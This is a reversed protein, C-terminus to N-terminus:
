PAAEQVEFEAIAAFPQGNHSNLALLRLYRASVPTVLQVTKLNEDPAFTGRNIPEGWDQGDMSTHFAYDKIWGNRNGDQRPLVNFGALQIPHDFRLVFEHPFGPQSERFVTHWFTRPDGDMAKGAEFGVEESSAQFPQVGVRSLRSGPLVLSRVQGATVSHKPSFQKSSMYRLLSHRFQRRVPDGALDNELDVSCIVLRGKGLRAEVVLGLKRATFWDDIVQVSPQLAAPFDDLIMAGARSTLYWWQWNSHFDTPFAAFLPHKPDCLIGLTHPAQQQTWATNWFISSFGLAVKGRKKDPAVREPPILLLVKGGSNLAALAAENLENAVTIGLPVATNVAPPYVWLDWDNEALTQWRLNAKNAIAPENPQSRIIQHLNIELRYKAPAPLQNL